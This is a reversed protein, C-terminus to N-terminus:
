RSGQWPQEGSARGYDNGEERAERAAPRLMENNQSGKAPGRDKMPPKKKLSKSMAQKETRAGDPREVAQQEEPIPAQAERSSTTSCGLLTTSIILASMFSRAPRMAVDRAVSTLKSYWRFHCTGILRHAVTLRPHSSNKQRDPQCWPVRTSSWHAALDARNGNDLSFVNKRRYSVRTLRPKFLSSAAIRLLSLRNSELWCRLYQRDRDKTGKEGSALRRIMLGPRLVRHASAAAAITPLLSREGFRGLLTLHGHGDHLLLELDPFPLYFFSRHSSELPCGGLWKVPSLGRPRGTDGRAPGRRLSRM